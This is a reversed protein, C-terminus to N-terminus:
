VCVCMYIYGCVCVCVSCVYVCVYVCVCMHCVCVCVGTVKKFISLSASLARHRTHTPTESPARTIDRIHSVRGTALPHLNGKHGAQVMAQRAREARQTIYSTHHIIHSTHHTIYSTYSTQHVIYSTRHIHM